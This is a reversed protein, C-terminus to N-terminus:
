REDDILFQNLKTFDTNYQNWMLITLLRLIVAIIVMGAVHISLKSVFIAYFHQYYIASSLGLAVGFILTTLHSITSLLKISVKPM